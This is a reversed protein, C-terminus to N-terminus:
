RSENWKSPQEFPAYTYSQLAKRAKFIKWGKRLIARASGQFHGV